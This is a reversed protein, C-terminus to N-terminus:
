FPTTCGAAGASAGFVPSIAQVILQEPVCVRDRAAGVLELDVVRGPLDDRANPAFM